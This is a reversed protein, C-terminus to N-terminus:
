IFKRWIPNGEARLKLMHLPDPQKPENRLKMGAQQPTRNSKSSNCPECATVCNLWSTDGGKSKPHVHDITVFEKGPQAGCYQCVYKDRKFVSFRSFHRARQPVEGYEMMIAIEPIQVPYNPTRVFPKDDQVGREVWEGFRFWDYVEIGGVSPTVDIAAAKGQFMKSLVDAATGIGVAQWFKNLVLVSRELPKMVKGKM